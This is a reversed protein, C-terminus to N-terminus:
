RPEGILGLFVSDAVRHGVLTLLDPWRLAGWQFGDFEHSHVLFVYQM